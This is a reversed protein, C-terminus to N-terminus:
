KNIKRMIAITEIMLFPDCAGDKIQCMNLFQPGELTVVNCKHDQVMEQIHEESQLVDAFWKKIDNDATLFITSPLILTRPLTAVCARFAEGWSNEISLFLPEVKKRFEGTLNNEIYLKFLEEADRLEIELKTCIYKFFTKKGFPFSLVSRLVGKTVIGVDTVEGSIDLLLYSNPAVYKDRVAFYTSVTFTAFSVKTHHFTKSLTERIMDLCMRPALSIIMNMELLKCRRGLPDNVPYGNLSVSMIHQEIIEPKGESDGYKENFVTELNKVEKQILDNALRKNFLFQKGEVMKIVRTESVYWPSALVCIIEDPAGAKKDYLSSATEHLAAVMDKMFVDFKLEKRTKIDTRVSKLISPIKNEDQTVKVLAGGVSCSGIDFIAFTKEKKGFSFLFGM